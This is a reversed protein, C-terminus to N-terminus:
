RPTAAQFYSQDVYVDLVPGKIPPSALENRMDLVMKAGGMNILGDQPVQMYFDAAQKPNLQGESIIMRIAEDRNAPNKLWRLATRWARLYATLEARNSQAWSRSVALVTGPYGKLIAERDYTIPLMGAASAQLDMPVNIIAAFTDGRKMSDLRQLPAGVPVLEYDGRKLDLGNALLIRRLALAFATDVADVALKKGKLDAFSRIEPRVFLPLAITDNPQAIAIIEAGERGSWALVNDFATIGIQYTGQGLGRMQQTSSGTRTFQLEVSEAAFYGLGKAILTVTEPIFWNVHIKALTKQQAIAPSGALFILTMAFLGLLQSYRFM